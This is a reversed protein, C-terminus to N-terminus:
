AQNEAAFLASILRDVDLYSSEQGVPVIAHSRLLFRHIDHARAAALLHGDPSCLEIMISAGADHDHEPWVHVDGDGVPEALGSALLERGYSWVVDEGPVRFTMTVAYPDNADYGLEAQLTHANGCADVCDVAIMQRVSDMLSDPTTETMRSWGGETQHLEM